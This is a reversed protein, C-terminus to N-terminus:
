NKLNESLKQWAAMSSTLHERVDGGIGYCQLGIPGNYGLEKLTKLLGGVDFSGQDLPQIYRNWGPQEDFNDAGNISM